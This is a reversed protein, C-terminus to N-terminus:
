EARREAELKAWKGRIDDFFDDDTGESDHQPEITINSM